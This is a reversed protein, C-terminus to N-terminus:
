KTKEPNADANIRDLMLEIKEQGVKVSLPSALIDEPHIPTASGQISIRASLTLKGEFPTDPMMVDQSTLKFQIPFTLPYTYRKVAIPPGAGEKRAIVYLASEPTLAKALSDKLNVQGSIVPSSKQTCSVQSIGLFVVSSILLSRFIM